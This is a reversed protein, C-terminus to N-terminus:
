RVCPRLMMRTRRLCFRLPGGTRGLYYLRDVVPQNEQDLVVKIPQGRQDVLINGRKLDRHIIGKQHAHQM